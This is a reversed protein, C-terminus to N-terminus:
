ILDNQLSNKSPPMYANTVFIKAIKHKGIQEGERSITEQQQEDEELTVDVVGSDKVAGVLTPMEVQGTQLQNDLVNTEVMGTVEAQLGSLPLLQALFCSLSWQPNTQWEKFYGGSLDTCKGTKGLVTLFYSR